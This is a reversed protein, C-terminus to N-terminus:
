ELSHGLLTLKDIPENGGELTVISRRTVWLYHTLDVTVELAHGLRRRRAECLHEIQQFLIWVPDVLDSTRLRREHRVVQNAQVFPRVLPHKGERLLGAELSCIGIFHRRQYKWELLRHCRHDICVRLQPFREDASVDLDHILNECTEDLGM